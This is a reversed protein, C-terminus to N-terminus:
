KRPGFALDLDPPSFFSGAFKLDDKQPKSLAAELGAPGAGHASELALWRWYEDITPKRNLNRAGLGSWFHSAAKILGVAAQDVGWGALRVHLIKAVTAEDLVINHVVCRRLFPPPLQRESNSTIVVIPRAHPPCKVERGTEAIEFSMQDIEHLLDNPFDRPAKDIEDILVVWPQAPVGNMGFAIGLERSQIFPEKDVRTQRIQSERFWSAADFTYLLDKARSESKVQFRLVRGDALLKSMWFAALTKGTGPEGTLLLPRGLTLAVRVATVLEPTAQYSAAFTEHGAAFRSNSTQRGALAADRLNAHHSASQAFADALQPSAAGEKPLANRAKEVAGAAKALENFTENTLM